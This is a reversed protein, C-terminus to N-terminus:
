LHHTNSQDNAAFSVRCANEDVGHPYVNMLVPSLSSGKPTAKVKSGYEKGERDRICTSLFSSILRILAGYGFQRGIVSSFASKGRRRVPVKIEGM